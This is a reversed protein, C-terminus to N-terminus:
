TAARGSVARLGEKRVPMGAPAAPVAASANRVPALQIQTVPQDPWLSGGAQEELQMAYLVLDLRRHIGLKGYITSLHNRLTHASIHLTNALVKNPAGRYKVAAAIVRIESPTFQGNCLPNSSRYPPSRGSTMRGLLRATMERKLWLEGAHVASIARVIVEEPDAKLLLGHAGELIASEHLGPDRIGTLIIIKAGCEERIPRVLRLGTQGEIDPELLVVDPRHQKVIRVVDSARFAVEAVEMRPREGDILNRLGWLMCRNDDVLVVKIVSDV